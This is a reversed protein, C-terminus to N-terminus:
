TYGRPKSSRVNAVPPPNPCSSTFEESASPSLLSIAVLTKSAFQCVVIREYSIGVAFGGSIDCLLYRATDPRLLNFFSSSTIRSDQQQDGGKEFTFLDKM